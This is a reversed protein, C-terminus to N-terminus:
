GAANIDGGYNNVTQAVLAELGAEQATQAGYSQAAGTVENELAEPDNMMMQQQEAASQQEALEAQEQMRKSLIEELKAKPVSSDDDLAEVYEDFSLQGMGFLREIAQERAYKSFPTTSSVDIRIVYDLNELESPDINEGGDTEIGDPNYVREINIWIRAIDEVFQRFDATQENLPIAAQDRVAIIATGSAQTPDINGVAADGAGALDRTLQMLETTISAAESSMQAPHLYNIYKSVDEVTAGDVEIATGVEMLSKPNIVKDGAYVLKSYATLKANLLRRAYSRNVEIQNAILPLVEGRGRCSGKKRNFVLSAIPYVGINEIIEEPQYVVNKTLRMFHLNGNKDLELYLLCTCKGDSTEVEHKTEETTVLNDTDTDPHIDSIKEKPVGNRKADAIVDNVPRREAIIIYPQKQLDPQQEDAFFIDTNNILQCNMREDYFYIYSEGAVAASKVAEWCKTDMKLREWSRLASLNLASTIQGTREDTKGPVSYNIVMNNMAIMSVKYKVTPTIFNLVPLSEDGSDVGHWQDGEYFRYAKEVNDNLSIIDHYSRCKSYRDWIERCRDESQKKKKGFM